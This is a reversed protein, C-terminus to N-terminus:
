QCDHAARTLEDWISTFDRLRRKQDPVHVPDETANIFLLTTEGVVIEDRDRLDHEQVKLGNVMSGAISDLDRLHFRNGRLMIELHRRSAKRDHSLVVDNNTARGITLSRNLRFEHGRLPGDLVLLWAGATPARLQPSIRQRQAHYALVEATAHAAEAAAFEGQVQAREQIGRRKGLTASEDAGAGEIGRVLVDRPASRIPAGDGATTLDDAPTDSPDRRASLPAGRNSGEESRPRWVLTKLASAIVAVAAVLSLLTRTTPAESFLDRANVGIFGLAAAALVLLVASRVPMPPRTGQQAIGVSREAGSAHASLRSATPVLLPSATPMPGSTTEQQGFVFRPGQAGSPTLSTADRAAETAAARQADLEQRCTATPALLDQLQDRSQDSIRGLELSSRLAAMKTSVLASLERATAIDAARQQAAAGLARVFNEATQFRRSPDKQLAQWVIEEIASPVAPNLARLRAPELQVVRELIDAVADSFGEPSFPRQGTLAEYLVVGLSFVDSRADLPRGMAQEPAMYAPTGLVMGTGSITEEGPPISLGFDCLLVRGDTSILINQPKVDRHILGQRHAAELAAGVQSVVDVAYDVDLPTRGSLIQALSMGDVYETVLYPRGDAEGCDLVALINPHRLQASARAESLFASPHSPHSGWYAAFFKLAVLRDIRTDLAKFVTGLGGQGIVSIIRYRGAVTTGHLENKMASLEYLETTL